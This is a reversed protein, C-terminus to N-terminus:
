PAQVLGAGVDASPLNPLRKATASLLKGLAAGREKPNAEALLAAVGAAHPTAMSTGSIRRNRTPMPWSSYVNVGPGAVDVQGGDPDIGRNSFPAIEMNVDVAAVAMISPCNAPHGVPNVVTPRESENGAAAIILSGAQSARRAVTEYVESFPEGPVTASGLSMSIVACGNAVAWDIGALIQADSGSGSNGLVKGAFIDADYAVGYRPQIAPQKGGTATGICHTGHGHGDAADEGAVFSQTTVNRGAFDPHREDFGTDLVAVSIGAGSYCSNVARVAQLGWTAQSEDAAAAVLELGAPAPSPGTLTLVADRFGRLYEASRVGELAYVVREPEVARIPTMGRVTAVSAEQIQQVPASVVAVGLTEFVVTQDGALGNADASATVIETGTADRLAKTGAKGAGEEFLV